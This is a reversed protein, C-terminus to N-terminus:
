WLKKRIVTSYAPEMLMEACALYKKIYQITCYFLWIYCWTHPIVCPVQQRSDFASVIVVVRYTFLIHIKYLKM